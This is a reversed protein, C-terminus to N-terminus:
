LAGMVLFMAAITWPAPNSLVELAKEYPLIGTVLMVTAGAIAIVEAPYRERVFLVFMTAVVALSLLAMGTPPLPLAIM